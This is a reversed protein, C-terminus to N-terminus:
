LIPLDNMFINLEIFSDNLEINPNFESFKYLENFLKLSKVFFNIIVSSVDSFNFLVKVPINEAISIPRLIILIKPFDIKLIKPWNEFRPFDTNPM